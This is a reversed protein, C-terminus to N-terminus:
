MPDLQALTQYHALFHPPYLDYKEISYASLDPYSPM